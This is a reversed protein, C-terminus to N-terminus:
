IIIGKEKALRQLCVIRQYKKSYKKDSSNIPKYGKTSTLHKMTGDQMNKYQKLKNDFWEKSFKKMKM